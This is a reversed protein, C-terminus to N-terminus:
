ELGKAIRNKLAMYTKYSPATGQLFDSQYADSKKIDNRKLIKSLNEAMIGKNNRVIYISDNRDFEDLSEAYHTSFILTAGKKNVRSNLYFRILTAVIEHNFHNELEDIILYGGSEFTKIAGLFTNIGKITGSSLYRDIKTIDNLKLESKDYFKLYYNKNGEQNNIHIYEISPDFFAILEPPCDNSLGLQNVNTYKLMDVCELKESETKNFAIMISIDYPLFAENSNRELVISSENMNFLDAKSKVKSFKKCKLNEEKITLKENKEIVTHLSYINDKSYFYVNFNVLGGNELGDFIETYPSSNVADNNLMECIFAIVKLITTKGSANLGIFSIASNLFIKCYNNTFLLNMEEIDDKAVRQMPVFDIENKGNFLPLGDFEIKLLKM